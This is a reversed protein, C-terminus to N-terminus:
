QRKKIRKIGSPAIITMNPMASLFSMDFIGQHTEGDSGVLGARDFILTVPLKQICVDHLIKIM